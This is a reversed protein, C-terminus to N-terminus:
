KFDELTPKIIFDGDRIRNSMPADGVKLYVQWGKLTRPPLMIFRHNYLKGDGLTIKNM